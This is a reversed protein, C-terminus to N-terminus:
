GRLFRNEKLFDMGGFFGLGGGIFFGLTGFLSEGLIAAVLAIVAAFMIVIENLENQKNDLNTVLMNGVTRLGPSQFGRLRRRVRRVGRKFKTHQYRVQRRYSM